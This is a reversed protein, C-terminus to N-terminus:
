RGAIEMAFAESHGTGFAQIVGGADIATVMLDIAADFGGAAADKTLTDLRSIVEDSYRRILESLDASQPM